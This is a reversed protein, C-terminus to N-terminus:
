TVAAHGITWVPPRARRSRVLHRSPHRLRCDWRSSLREHQTVTGAITPHRYVPLPDRRQCRHWRERCGRSDVRYATRGPSGPRRLRREECPQVGLRGIIPGNPDYDAPRATVQKSAGASSRAPAQHPTPALRNHPSAVHGQPESWVGLARPSHRRTKRNGGDDTLLRYSGPAPRIALRTHAMHCRYGWNASYGWFYGRRGRHSAPRQCGRAAGASGLSRITLSEHPLAPRGHVAM